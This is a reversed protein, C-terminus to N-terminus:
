LSDALEVDVKRVEAIFYKMAVPFGLRGVGAVANENRKDTTWRMIISYLLQKATQLKRKACNASPICLM